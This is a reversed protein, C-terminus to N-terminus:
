NQLFDGLQTACWSVIFARTERGPGEYKPHIVPSSGAAVQVVILHEVSQAVGVM